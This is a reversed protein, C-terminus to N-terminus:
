QCHYPSLVAERKDKTVISARLGVIEAELLMTYTLILHVKANIARARDEASDMVADRLLHEM